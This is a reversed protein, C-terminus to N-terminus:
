IHMRTALRITAFDRPGCGSLLVVLWAMSSAMGHIGLFALSAPDETM